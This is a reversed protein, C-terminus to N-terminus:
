RGRGIAEPRNDLYFQITLLHDTQRFIGHDFQGLVALQDHRVARRDVQIIIAITMGPSVILFLGIIIAFIGEIIILWRPPGSPASAEM